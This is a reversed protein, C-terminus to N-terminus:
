EDTIVKYTRYGFLTLGLFIFIYRRFGWHTSPGHADPGYRCGKNTYYFNKSNEYYVKREGETTGICEWDGFVQPPILEALISMLFPIMFLIIIQVINSKM